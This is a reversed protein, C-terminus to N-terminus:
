IPLWAAVVFYWYFANDTVDSFRRPQAHRTFMLAALVITDVVDTALHTTHLGLLFWLMSGFANVDWRIGLAAFEFARIALAVVGLLSMLVLGIRVRVLALDRAVRDLWVNPAISLVLVVTLITAPWFNAPVLVPPPNPNAALLYLYAGVVLAFGCGEIGVFGLTGWWPTGRSGFGWTPLASVDQVSRENM